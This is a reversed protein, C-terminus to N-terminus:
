VNGIRRGDNPVNEGVTNATTSHQEDYYLGVYSCVYVGECVCVPMCRGATSM